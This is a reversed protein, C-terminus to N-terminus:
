ANQENVNRVSGLSISRRTLTAYATAIDLLLNLLWEPLDSVILLQNM